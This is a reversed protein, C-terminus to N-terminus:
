RSPALAAWLRGGLARALLGLKARKSVEPRRSWVDYNQAEIRNLIAQGGRSFLDIDVRVDPPIRKLLPQGKAFFDRTRTVEFALLDRFEQSFRGQRFDDETVGFRRLDEGPLYIRGLQQWDRAVDQWFNALQLGTCIFDSLRATEPTHSECLYLVLRGVPNASRDCYSLLEEFTAYRSVAQDQEFASLLDLFPQPPIRFRDITPKLAITVPHRPTGDYCRLLEERWWRLLRVSEAPSGAEDALDDAWRCFAYVPHFHPVLRRPLLVSAVSFNEYHTRTLRACYSRALDASVRREPVDPGYLRLDDFVSM